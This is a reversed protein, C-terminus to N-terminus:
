LPKITHRSLPQKMTALFEIAEKLTAFGAVAKPPKPTGNVYDVTSVTFCGQKFGFRKANPSTPYSWGIEKYQQSNTQM